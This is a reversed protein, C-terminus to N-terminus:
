QLIVPKFSVSGRRERLGIRLKGRTLPPQGRDITLRYYGSITRALRRTAQSPFYATKLYIGGTDGAIGQLGNELAHWAAEMVDLVFVPARIADLARLAPLYHEDAVVGESPHFHGISWGVYIVLKDGPLAALAEAVLELGREPSTARRAEGVDFHEDLSGRRDGREGRRPVPVAGPRFARDLIAVTAERDGTLDQMLELHRYYAFVAVRDGDPLGAVLERLSPLVKVHGQVVTPEYDAQVFVVVQRGSPAPAATRLASAPPEALSPPLAESPRPASAGVWEAALIPLEQKGVKAVLEGPTLDTIPDGHRDVIRAEVSVVSVTIEDFFGLAPLDEGPEGALAALAGAPESWREVRRTDAPPRFLLLEATVPGPQIQHFVSIRTAGAAARPPAPSRRDPLGAASVAEGFVDAVPLLEVEVRQILFSDRGIWLESTITGGMRSMTLVWCSGADCVEPGDVSAAEPEALADASGAVLVAVALAEFGGDGFGHVLEAAVSAVPRYQGRRSDYLFAGGGDRWLVRRETAQDGSRLLEWRFGGDAGAATTFWQSMRREEGDVTTLIRIEGLDQYESLGGYAQRVRELLEYAGPPAAEPDAAASAAMVAAMVAAM